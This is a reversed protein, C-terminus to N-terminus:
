GIFFLTYMAGFSHRSFEFRKGWRALHRVVPSGFIPEWGKNPRAEEGEWDYEGDAIEYWSSCMARLRDRARTADKNLWPPMGFSLREAYPEFEWFADMIRPHVEFIRSGLMSKTASTSMHDKVIDSVRLTVWENNFMSISEKLRTQFTSAFIAVWDADALDKHARHMLQFIHKESSASQTYRQQLPGADRPKEAKFKELDASGYDATHRLIHLIWPDSTFSSRFLTSVPGLGSILFVNM